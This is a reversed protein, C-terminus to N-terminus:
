YTPRITGHHPQPLMCLTGTRSHALHLVELPTVRHCTHRDINTDQAFGRAFQGFKRIDDASAMPNLIHM